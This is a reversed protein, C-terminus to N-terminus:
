RPPCLRHHTAMILESSEHVLTPTLSSSPSQAPASDMRGMVKRKTTATPTSQSMNSALAGFQAQAAQHLSVAIDLSARSPHTVQNRLGRQTVQPHLGNIRDRCTSELAAAQIFPSLSSHPLWRLQAGDRAPLYPASQDHFFRPPSSLHHVLHHIPELPTSRALSLTYGSLAHEATVFQSQLTHLWQPMM